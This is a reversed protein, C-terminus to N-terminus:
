LNAVHSEVDGGAQEENGGDCAEGFSATRVLERSDTVAAVVVAGVLSCPATRITCASLKPRM